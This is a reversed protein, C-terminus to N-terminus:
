PVALSPDVGCPTDGDGRIPAEIEAPDGITSASCLAGSNAAAIIPAARVAGSYPAVIISAARMAGANPVAIISAAHM